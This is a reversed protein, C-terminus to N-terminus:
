QPPVDKQSAPMNCLNDKVFLIEMAHNFISGSCAGEESDM